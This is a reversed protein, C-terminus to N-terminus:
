LCVLVLLLLYALTLKKVAKEIWHVFRAPISLSFGRGYWFFDKVELFGAALVFAGIAVYLLNAVIVFARAATFVNLLTIGGLFYTFYVGAVYIFATFLMKRRNKVRLLVTLLLILVGIVCPNISDVLAGGVVVPLTLEAVPM